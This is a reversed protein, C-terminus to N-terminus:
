LCDYQHRQNFAVSVMHFGQESLSRVLERNKLIRMCISHIREQRAEYRPSEPQGFDLLLYKKPHGDEPVSVAELGQFDAGLKGMESLMHRELRNEAETAALAPLCTSILILGGLALTQIMLCETWKRIIANRKLNEVKEFPSALTKSLSKCFGPNSRADSGHCLRM